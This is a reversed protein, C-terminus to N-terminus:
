KQRRRLFWLLLLAILAIVLVIILGPWGISGISAFLNGFLRQSTQGNNNATSNTNTEGVPLPSPSTAAPTPSTEASNTQALHQGAMISAALPTSIPTPSPSEFPITKESDPSTQESGGAAEAGEELGTGGRGGDIALTKFDVQRSIVLSGRSIARVHYVTDPNLGSLMVAHGTVKPVLDSEPTSNAYGYKPPTSNKDLLDLANPQGAASFIVQSTSPNDTTWLVTATTSTIDTIKISEDLLILDPIFSVSGSSGAVPGSGSTSSPEPSPSPSPSPTESPTPTPTPTETPTPTPTETPTPSPTETPTPSPTETPTPTPTPPILYNGFDFGSLHQNWDIISVSQSGGTPYTQTWGTKQTESLTYDGPELGSFQYCGSADTKQTLSVPGDLKIEWDALLETEGTDKVGNGDTDRWKCGSISSYECIKQAVSNYIAGLEEDSPSYYYQAGTTSAINRLMTENIDSVSQSFGITFIKYGLAAAAEAQAQAYDIDAQNEDSGNGFPKNALGNTLLIAVKVAQSRSRESGLEQNALKMADGINTSGDASIANVADKTAIHDGSLGKDLNASSSFSVLGSQDGSGLKDIFNSAAVKVSQIKSLTAPQFTALRGPPISKADCWEKTQEYTTNLVWQYSEGVM